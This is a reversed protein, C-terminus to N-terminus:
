RERTISNKKTRAEQRALRRAELKQSRRAEVLKSPQNKKKSQRHGDCMGVGSGREHQAVRKPKPRAARHKIPSDQWKGYSTALLLCASLQLSIVSSPMSAEDLRIELRGGLLARQEALRDSDSVVVVFHM